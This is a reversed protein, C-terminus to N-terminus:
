LGDPDSSKNESKTANATKKEEKKKERLHRQWLRRHGRHHLQMQNFSRYAARLSTLLLLRVQLSSIRFGTALHNARSVITMKPKASQRAEVRHEEAHGVMHVRFAAQLLSDFGLRKHQLSIKAKHTAPANAAAQSCPSKLHRSFPCQPRASATRSRVYIRKAFMITKLIYFLEPFTILLRTVNPFPISSILFPLLPTFALDSEGCSLQSHSSKRCPNLQRSHIIRVAMPLQSNPM